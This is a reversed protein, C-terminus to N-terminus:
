VITLGGPRNSIANKNITIITAPKTTTTIKNNTATAAHHYIKIGTNNYDWEVPYVADAISTGDMAWVCWRIPHRYQQCCLAELVDPLTLVQLVESYNILSESLVNEKRRCAHMYKRWRRAVNYSRWCEKCICLKIWKEKMMENREVENEHAPHRM